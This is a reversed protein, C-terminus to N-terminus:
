DTQTSIEQSNPHGYAKGCKCKRGSSSIAHELVEEKKQRSAKKLRDYDEKFKDSEYYERIRKRTTIEEFELNSEVIMEQVKKMYEDEYEDKRIQRIAAKMEVRIYEIVMRTYEVGDRHKDQECDSEVVGRNEMESIIENKERENNILSVIIRMVEDERSNNKEVECLM